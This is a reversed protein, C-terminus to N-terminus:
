KNLDKNQYDSYLRWKDLIEFDKVKKRLSVEDLNAMILYMAQPLTPFSLFSPLCIIAIESTISSTISSSLSSSSTPNQYCYSSILFNSIFGIDIYVKKLLNNWPRSLLQRTKTPIPLIKFFTCRKTSKSYIM